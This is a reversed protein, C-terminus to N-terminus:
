LNESGVAQSITSFGDKALLGVLGQNILGIIEPGEFIMGSILQVLSAGLKIKRYADEASFIGGCGIIVFDGGAKKYFRAIMKDSLDGVPKGSIGGKEPIKSDLLKSNQRLKTLNSIIFGSVRHRRSISIIEDENKESMDPSLKLFVPKKTSIKDLETMLREFNRPEVFPQGGCANPCSINVTFYAGIERFATFAKKYDEVAKEIDLNKPDNTMAVSTGVPFAFKENKLRSSIAECGDNKLGYYVVLGESKPLRWLRPKPNGLCSEGTISGIEEFGFGVSPLIKTLKADKDFGAALGVPNEFRIGLINQALVPSDYRFFLTTIKRTFWFKGLFVGVSTLFDHINEPDFLFFVPKLIKKYLFRVIEGKLKFFKESFSNM